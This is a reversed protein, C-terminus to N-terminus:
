GRKASSKNPKQLELSSIQTNIERSISLSAKGKLISLSMLGLARPPGQSNKCGIPPEYCLYLGGRDSHPDQRGALQM